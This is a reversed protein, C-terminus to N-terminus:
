KYITSIEVTLAFRVPAHCSPHVQDLVARDAEDRLRFLGPEAPVLDARLEERWGPHTVDGTGLVSVGKKRAWLAFHHLDCTKATARSHRSHLHLDAVFEM